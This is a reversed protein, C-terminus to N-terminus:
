LQLQAYTTSTHHQHPAPASPPAATTTAAGIGAPPLPLCKLAVYYLQLEDPQREPRADENSRNNNFTM